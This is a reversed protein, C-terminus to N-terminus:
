NREKKDIFPLVVEELYRVMTKENSWHNASHWCDWGQPVTVSPHCRPKKGKFLLQPPLYEGTLTAALVTIQRKDDSNAIPVMKAKAENMTWEGTPVLQLGTQDWNIVLEKHIDNFFVEAKIDFLYEEKM